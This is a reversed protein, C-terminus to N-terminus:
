ILGGGGIGTKPWHGKGCVFWNGWLVRSEGLGSLLIETKERVGGSICVCKERGNCARVISKRVSWWSHSLCLSSVTVFCYGSFPSSPCEGNARSWSEVAVGAPRRLVRDATLSVWLARGASVFSRRNLFCYPNPYRINLSNVGKIAMQNDPRPIKKQSPFVIKNSPKMKANEAQPTFSSKSM